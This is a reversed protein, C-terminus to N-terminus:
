KTNYILTMDYAECILKNGFITAIGWQYTAPKLSVKNISSHLVILHVLSCQQGRAAAHRVLNSPLGTYAPNISNSESMHFVSTVWHLLIGPFNGLSSYFKLRMVWGSFNKKAFVVKTKYPTSSHM